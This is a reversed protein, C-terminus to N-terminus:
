NPLEVEPFARQTSWAAYTGVPPILLVAWALRKVARVRAPDLERLLSGAALAVVLQVVGMLAVGVGVWMTTDQWQLSSSFILLTAGAGFLLAWTRLLHFASRARITALVDEDPARGAEPHNAVAYSAILPEGLLRLVPLAVLPGLPLMMATVAAGTRARVLNLGRPKHDLKAGWDQIWLFLVLGLAAGLAAGLAPLDWGWWFLVTVWLTSQGAVVAALVRFKKRAVNLVDGVRVVLETM